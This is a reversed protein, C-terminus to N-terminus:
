RDYHLSLLLRSFSMLAVVFVVLVIVLQAATLGMMRRGSHSSELVAVAQPLAVPAEPESAPELKRRQHLRNLQFIAWALFGFYLATLYSRLEADRLIVKYVFAALATEGIIATYLLYESRNTRSSSKSAM